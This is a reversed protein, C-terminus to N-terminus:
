NDKGDPRPRKQRRSGGKLGSGPENDWLHMSGRIMFSGVIIAVLGGVILIFLRAVGGMRGM